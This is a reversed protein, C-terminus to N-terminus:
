SLAGTSSQDGGASGEDRGRPHDHINQGGRASAEVPAGQAEDRCSFAALWQELCRAPFTQATSHPLEALTTAAQLLADARSASVPVLENRRAATM